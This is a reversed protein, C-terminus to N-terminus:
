IQRSYRKLGNTKSKRCQLNSSHKLSAFHIGFNSPFNSVNSLQRNLDQQSYISNSTRLYGQEDNGVGLQGNSVSILSQGSSSSSATNRWTDTLSNQQPNQENAGNNLQNENNNLDSNRRWTEAAFPGEFNYIHRSNQAEQPFM